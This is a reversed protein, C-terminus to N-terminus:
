DSRIYGPLDDRLHSRGYRISDPYYETYLQVKGAIEEGAQDAIFALAMDMGASVGASTWINGDRVFRDDVVRVDGQKKLEELCGWYTTAKKGRLLGAAHLVLSGTCVSLIAKCTQAQHQIFQIVDNDELAKRSGIGGPVLLYDLKPCDNFECDPVIRLGNVCKIVTNNKALTFCSTPGNFYQRWANIMEWPGVFDLEELDDFLFFGFNM